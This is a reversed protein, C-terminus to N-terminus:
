RTRARSRKGTSISRTGCVGRCRAFLYRPAAGVTSPRDSTSRSSGNRKREPSTEIVRGGGNPSPGPASSGPRDANPSGRGRSPTISPAAAGEGCARGRVRWSPRLHGHHAGGPAAALESCTPGAVRGPPKESQTPAPVRHPRDPTTPHRTARRAILPDTSTWRVSCQGTGEPPRRPLRPPLGRRSPCPSAFGVRSCPTVRTESRRRRGSRQTSRAGSPRSRVARRVPCGAPSLPCARGDRGISSKRSSTAGPPARSSVPFLMDSCAQCASTGRTRRGTPPDGREIRIRGVGGEVHQRGGVAAARGPGGEEQAGRGLGGQGGNLLKRMGAPACSHDGVREHGVHRGRCTFHQRRPPQQRCLSSSVSTLSSM